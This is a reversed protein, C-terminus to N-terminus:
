EFLVQYFFTPTLFVMHFSHLHKGQWAFSDRIPTSTKILFVNIIFTVWNTRMAQSFRIQPTKKKNVASMSSCTDGTSISSDSGSLVSSMLVSATATLLHTYVTHMSHIHPQIGFPPGITWTQIRNWVPFCPPSLPSSSWPLLTLYWWLPTTPM